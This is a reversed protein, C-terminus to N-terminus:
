HKKLFIGHGASAFTKFDVNIDMIECIVSVNKKTILNSQKASFKLDIAYYVKSNSSMLTLLLLTRFFFSEGAITCNGKFDWVNAATLTCYFILTLLDLIAIIIIISSKNWKPKYCITCLICLILHNILTM